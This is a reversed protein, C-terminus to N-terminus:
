NKEISTLWIKLFHITEIECTDSLTLYNSNILYYQGSSPCSYYWSQGAKNKIIGRLM